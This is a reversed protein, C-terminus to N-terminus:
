HFVSMDEVFSLRINNDLNRISEEAKNLKALNKFKVYLIVEISKDDKDIRRLKVLLANSKLCNVIKDLDM